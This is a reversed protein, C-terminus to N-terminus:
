IFWDRKLMVGDVTLPLYFLCFGCCLLSINSPYLIRVNIEICEILFINIHRTFVCLQSLFHQLYQNANVTAWLSSHANLRCYSAPKRSDLVEWWWRGQTSTPLRLLKYDCPTLTRPLMIIPHVNLKKTKKVYIQCIVSSLHIFLVDVTPKFQPFHIKWKM